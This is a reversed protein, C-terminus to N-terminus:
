LGLRSRLESGSIMEDDKDLLRDLAIRYDGYEEIYTKIAESIIYTRSRDMARSLEELDKLVSEDLRISIAKSMMERRDQKRHEM